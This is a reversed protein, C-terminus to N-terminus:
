DDYQGPFMSTCWTPLTLGKSQCGDCAERLRSRSASPASNRIHNCLPRWAARGTRSECGEGEGTVHIMSGTCSETHTQGNCKSTIRLDKYYQYGSDPWLEPFLNVLNDGGPKFYDKCATPIQSLSCSQLVSKWPEPVGDDCGAACIEMRIKPCYYRRFDASLTRHQCLTRGNLTTCYQGDGCPAHEIGSVQRIEMSTYAKTFYNAMQEDTGECTYTRRCCKLDGSCARSQGARPVEEASGCDDQCTGGGTATCSSGEGAPTSICCDLGTSWLCIKANRGQADRGEPGTGVMQSAPVITGSQCTSTPWCKYGSTQRAPIGCPAGEQGTGLGGSSGDGGAGGGGGGTPQISEGEGTTCCKTGSPCLGATTSWYQDQTGSCRAYSNDQVCFRDMDTLRETILHQNGLNSQMWDWQCQSLCTLSTYEEFPPQRCTMGSGSEGCSAGVSKGVCESDELDHLGRLRLTKRPETGLKVSIRDREISLTCPYNTGADNCRPLEGVGALDVYSQVSGTSMAHMNAHYLNFALRDVGDGIVEVDMTLSRGEPGPPGSAPMVINSIVVRDSGTLGYARIGFQEPNTATLTITRGVADAMTSVDLSATRRLGTIRITQGTSGRTRLVVANSNKVYCIPNGTGEQTPLPMADAAAGGSDATGGTGSAGAVSSAASGSCTQGARLATIAADLSSCRPSLAVGDRVIWHGSGENIISDQVVQGGDNAWRNGGTPCDYLWIDVPPSLTESLVSYVAQGRVEPDMKNCTGIAPVAITAPAMGTITNVDLVASGTTPAVLAPVIEDDVCASTGAETIEGDGCFCPINDADITVGPTCWRMDPSAVGSGAGSGTSGELLDRQQEDVADCLQMPTGSVYLQADSADFGRSGLNLGVAVPDLLATPDTRYRVSVESDEEQYDSVYVSVGDPLGSSVGIIKNADSPWFQRSNTLVAEEGGTLQTLGETATFGQFTFVPDGSSLRLKIVRDNTSGLSEICPASGCMGLTVPTTSGPVQKEITMFQDPILNMRGVDINLLGYNARSDINIRFGESHDGANIWEFDGVGIEEGVALSDDDVWLGFTPNDRTNNHLVVATRRTLDSIDGTQYEDQGGERCSVRFQVTRKQEENSEFDRSAATGMQYSGGVQEADRLELVMSWTDYQGPEPCTEAGGTQQSGRFHFLVWADSRKVEVEIGGDETRVRSGRLAFTFGGCEVEPNAGSSIPTEPQEECDVASGESRFIRQGQVTEVRGPTYTFTTNDYSVNVAQDEIVTTEVRTSGVLFGSRLRGSIPTATASSSAARMGFHERKIEFSEGGSAVLHNQFQADNFVTFDYIRGENLREAVEERGTPYIRAAGAPSPGNYVSALLYKTHQCDGSCSAADAPLEQAVSARVIASDGIGYVQEPEKITEVTLFRGAGLPPVEVGCRFALNVLDFECLGPPPGGIVQITADIRGGLASADAVTGGFGTGGVGLASGYGGAGTQETPRYEIIVKDYRLPQGEAVFLIEDSCFDGQQIDGTEPCDGTGHRPITLEIGSSGITGRSQYEALTTRQSCDCPETGGDWTTCMADPGSCVLKLDYHVDSGAFFSYAIRYVFRSYGTAPDYAQWRRTAPLVLGSSNIPLMAATEFISSYDTPWEGTFMFICADHMVNEASFVTGFLNRDGYRSQADETAARSADAISSFVGGIGGVGVRASAGGGLRQVICSIAEQILDCVYQSVLARCQGASGDGTVLITQFCQQLLILMNKFTVLWSLIGSLCVTMISQIFSGAPQALYQRGPDGLLGAIQRYWEEYDGPAVTGGGVKEIHGSGIKASLDGKFQKLGEDFRDEDAGPNANDMQSFWEHMYQSQGPEPVFYSGTSIEVRGSAEVQGATGRIEDRSMYGRKVNKPSGKEDIDVLYYVRQNVMSLRDAMYGAKWQLDSIEVPVARPSSGKPQCIGTVGRHITAGIGCNKKDEPHALCYSLKIENSLLMGWRWEDYYEFPCCAAQPVHGAECKETMEAEGEEFFEYMNKIPLRGLEAFSCDSDSRRIDPRKYDGQTYPLVRDYIPNTTKGAGSTSTGGSGSAVVVGGGATVPNGTIENGVGVSMGTIDAVASGAAATGGTEGTTLMGEECSAGINATGAQLTGCMCPVNGATLDQGEPCPDLAAGTNVEGICQSNSCRQGAQCADESGCACPSAGAPRVGAGCQETPFTACATGLCVQGSACSAAEDGTGCLCSTSARRGVTCPTTASAGAADAAAQGAQGLSSASPTWMNRREGQYKSLIFHQLTPVSPCMVRDCFLHWKDKIWKAKDMASRCDKCAQHLGQTQSNREPFEIECAGQNTGDDMMAVKEMSGQALERAAGVLGGVGGEGVQSLASNWKCKYSVWFDMFFKAIYSVLCVALTIQAAYKIPEEILDIFELTANIARLSANLLNRVFGSSAFPIRRDIMVQVLICQKQPLLPQASVPPVGTESSGYEARFPGPDSDIEMELLLQICGPGQGNVDPWCEGVRHDSLNNEKELYTEGEPDLHTFDIIVFGETANGPTYLARPEGALWDFDYNESELSGVTARRMQVRQAKAQTADGGGIWELEYSFGYAAVGELLERSNLVNGGQELHVSWYTNSGCPTYEINGQVPSSSRGYSDVFIMMVSHTNQSGSVGSTDVSTVGSAATSGADTTTSFSGAISGTFTGSLSVEAEFTGNEQVDFVGMPEDPWSFSFNGSADTPNDRFSTLDTFDASDADVWVYVSGEDKNVQGRILLESMYTPSYQGTIDASTPNIIQPPESDYHFDFTEEEENGAADVFLLRVSNEGEFLGTVTETFSITEGAPNYEKTFMLSPSDPIIKSVPDRMEGDPLTTVSFSSSRDGENGARDVASVQYTYTTGTSVNVDSFTNMSQDVVAIPGDPIDSRYILYHYVDTVNDDYRAWSIGIENPGLSSNTVNEPAPPGETDDGSLLYVYLTVPNDDTVNGKFQVSSSTAYRLDETENDFHVEPPYYDLLVNELCEIPASVRDDAVIRLANEELDPDLDVGLFQFERSATVRKFREKRDNVYLTVDAGPISTGRMDYRVNNAFATTQPDCDLGDLALSLEVTESTNITVASSNGCNASPDCSEAILAYQTNSELDTLTMNHSTVQESVEKRQDLQLPNTGYRIRTHGPINTTFTVYVNTGLVQADLGSVLLAVFDESRTRATVSSNVGKNGAVDVACVKFTYDTGNELGSAMFSKQKVNGDLLEDDQYVMYHDVDEDRDDKEWSLTISERTIAPAALGTVAHPATRDWEADTTFSHYDGGEFPSRVTDGSSNRAEIYYQFTTSYALGSLELSHETSATTSRESELSETNVGYYLAGTTDEDTVWNVTATRDTVVVDTDPNFTIDLADATYVPMLLILWIMFISIRCIVQDLDKM